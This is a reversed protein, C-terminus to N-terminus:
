PISDDSSLSNLCLIDDVEGSIYTPLLGLDGPHLEIGVRKNQVCSRALSVMLASVDAM